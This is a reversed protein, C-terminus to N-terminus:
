IGTVISLQVSTSAAPRVKSESFIRESNPFLPQKEFDFAPKHCVSFGRKRFESTYLDTQHYLFSFDRVECPSWSYPALADNTLCQKYWCMSEFLRDM